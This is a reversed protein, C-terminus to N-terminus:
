KNMYDKYIDKFQESAYLALSEERFCLRASCISVSFVCYGVHSLRFNKGLYWWSYYKYENQTDWDLEYKENLARTIVVLEQEAIIHRPLSCGNLQKLTKVEGDGEGLYNIADQLTKIKSLVDEIEFIEKVIPLQEKTSAKVMEQIQNEAFEISDSFPDKSAYEKIKKRWGDCAIDYIRKLETKAIITKM